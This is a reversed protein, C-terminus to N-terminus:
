TRERVLVSGEYHRQMARGEGQIVGRHPMCISSLTQKVHEEFRFKSMILQNPKGIILHLSWALCRSKASPHLMVQRGNLHLICHQLVPWGAQSIMHEYVTYVQSSVAFLFARALMNVNAIQHVCAHASPLFPCSLFSLYRWPIKM